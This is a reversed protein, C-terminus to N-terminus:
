AGECDRKTRLFGERAEIETRVSWHRSLTADLMGTADLM